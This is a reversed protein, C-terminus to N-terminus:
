GARGRTFGRAQGVSSFIPLAQDLNTIALLNAMFPTPAALRLWGGAETTQKNLQVFLGLGASDCFGVDRLDLVIRTEGRNIADNLLEMVPACTAHSLEGDLKATVLGDEVDVIQVHLFDAQEGPIIESM